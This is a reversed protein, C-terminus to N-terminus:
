KMRTSHRHVPNTARDVELLVRAESFTIQPDHVRGDRWTRRWFGLDILADPISWDIKGSALDQFYISKGVITDLYVDVGGHEEQLRWANDLLGFVFQQVLRTHDKIYTPAAEPYTISMKRARKQPWAQYRRM